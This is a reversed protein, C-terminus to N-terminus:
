PLDLIADPYLKAAAFARVARIWVDEGAEKLHFDGNAYGSKLYGRENMMQDAFNLFTVEHTECIEKLIENFSNWRDIKIKNEKCYHETVPLIGFIVIEM